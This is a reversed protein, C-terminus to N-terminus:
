WYLLILETNVALVARLRAQQIATKIDGLLSQYKEIEKSM